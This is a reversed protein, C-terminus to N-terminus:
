AAHTESSGVCHSAGSIPHDFGHRTFQRANMFAQNAVRERTAETMNQLDYEFAKQFEIHLSENLAMETPLVGSNAMSGDCGQAVWYDRMKTTCHLADIDDQLMELGECYDIQMPTPLAGAKTPGLKAKTSHRRIPNPGTRPVPESSSRVDTLWINESNNLFNHTGVQQVLQVMAIDGAFITNIM